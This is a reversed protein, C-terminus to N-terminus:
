ALRRVQLRIMAIYIWAQASAETKEYDRVLRRQQMLWGFTREVVWRRPLVEFGEMDDSRKVVEVKLKPRKEKVWDAFAKGNYGGDVWLIRLWNFGQLLGELLEKAGSREPTISALSTYAWCYGWPIWWFIANEVRSVNGPMMALVGAM